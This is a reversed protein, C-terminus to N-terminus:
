KLLKPLENWVWSLKGAIFDFVTQAAASSMASTIVWSMYGGLFANTWDKRGLRQSSESAYALVSNLTSIQSESLAAITRAGQRIEDISAALRDQEHKTFSNNPASVALSPLLESPPQFTWYDPHETERRIFGLWYKFVFCFRNWPLPGTAERITANGPSREGAFLDGSKPFITFYYGTPLHVLKPFRDPLRGTGYVNEWKFEEPNFGDDRVIQFLANRQTTLLDFNTM